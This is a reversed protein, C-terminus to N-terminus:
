GDAPPAGRLAAREGAALARAEAIRWCAGFPQAGAGVPDFFSALLGNEGGTVFERVPPTDSGIVACGIALAERLSWSAVFPYTLYVHADSRQLMSVYTQYDLKGPFVVRDPDIGDGVENLMVQALHGAEASQRLQHRRRRGDGRARGEARAASAAARADDPSLRSVAGPRARCLHGAQGDPKITMDGIKMPSRRVKPNPKCVDLDVGERLLNIQPRAWDPYTSLQWETPTQGHQGLNLAIHNIANKARIRPFDTVDVPFEPDFGVDIGETHYYFEFYGLLPVDPWVDPLNLLEGWGHHGIIIDPKFGLQKLNNATHRSRKPAACAATWSARPSIRRPRPAQRSATPCRACARSATSTRSPSSSSRTSSRRWSTGCSM